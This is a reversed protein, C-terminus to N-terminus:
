NLQFRQLRIDGLLIPISLKVIKLIGVNKCPDFKTKHFM